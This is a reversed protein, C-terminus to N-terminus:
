PFGSPNQSLKWERKKRKAKTKEKKNKLPFVKTKNPESTRESAKSSHQRRMLEVLYERM